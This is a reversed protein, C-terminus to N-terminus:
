WLIKVARVICEHLNPFILCYATPVMQQFSRCEMKDQEPFCKRYYTVYMKIAFFSFRVLFILQRYPLLQLVAKRAAMVEAYAYNSPYPYPGALNMKSASFASECCYCRDIRLMFLLVTCVTIKNSCRSEQSALQYLESLEM